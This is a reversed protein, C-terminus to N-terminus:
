SELLWIEPLIPLNVLFFESSSSLKPISSDCKVYALFQSIIIRTWFNALYAFKWYPLYFILQKGLLALVRWPMFIGM